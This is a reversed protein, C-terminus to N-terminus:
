VEHSGGLAPVYLLGRRLEKLLDNVFQLKLCALDSVHAVPQVVVDQGGQLRTHDRIEDPPARPSTKVCPRRVGGFSVQTDLIQALQRLRECTRAQDASGGAPPAM